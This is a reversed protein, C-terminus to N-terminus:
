CRDTSRFQSIIVWEIGHLAQNIEISQAVAGM